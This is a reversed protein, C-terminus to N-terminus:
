TSDGIVRLFVTQIFTPQQEFDVRCRYESMDELQVGQVVLHAMESSTQFFSRNAIEIKPDTWHVPNTSNKTRDYTYFPTLSDNKFWLVLTTRDAPLSPTINCPLEVARELYVERYLVI